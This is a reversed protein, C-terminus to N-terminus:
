QHTGFTGPTFGKPLHSFQCTSVGGRNPNLTASIEGSVRSDNVVGSLKTLSLIEVDRQLKEAAGATTFCLCLFMIMAFFPMSAMVNSHRSRHRQISLSSM